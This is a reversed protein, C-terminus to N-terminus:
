AQADTRKGLGGEPFFTGLWSLASDEGLSLLGDLPDDLCAKLQHCTPSGEGFMSDGHEQEISVILSTLREESERVARMRQIFYTVDASTASRRRRGDSQQQFRQVALERGYSECTLRKSM